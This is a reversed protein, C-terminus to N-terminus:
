SKFEKVIFLELFRHLSGLFVIMLLLLLCLKNGEMNFNSLFALRKSIFILLPHSHITIYKKKNREIIKGLVIAKPPSKQEDQYILRDGKFINKGILRHIKGDVLFCSGINHSEIDIINNILLIDNTKFFPNM